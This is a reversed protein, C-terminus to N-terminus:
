RKADPSASAAARRRAIWAGLYASAAASAGVIWALAKMDMEPLLWHLFAYMLLGGLIAALTTAAITNMGEVM